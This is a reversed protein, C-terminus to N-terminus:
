SPQNDETLWFVPIIFLMIASSIALGLGVGWKDIFFGLFIALISAWITKTQSQASLGSALIKSDIRDAFFAVGMPKRLNELLFIFLFLIIPLIMWGLYFFLGCLIGFILGTLLSFNLPLHLKKFLESVRGSNRSAISNLMFIIFYVVGIVIAIREKEELYLFVPLGLAFTQLIPQLYDKVAKYFGSYLSLNNVTKLIIPTKFAQWFSLWLVRFQSKLEGKKFSVIKGDLVKPYSLILLLDLVYPITSLLFVSHYEGNYFVIFAALLSSIASGMQSWSRTHGYYYVKQNAWGNIELYEFIMAKHIGSRFAEGIAFLIMATAFLAFSNVLYFLLFSSIYFLFSFAMTRRRGMADAVFGTPIEILNIAIESIAYLKGIELFTLGKELFFLILFPEFFRLNKLFGYFCFKYYQLNKEFTVQTSKM